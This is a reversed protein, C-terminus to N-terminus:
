TRLLRRYLLVTVLALLVIGSWMLAMGYLSARSNYAVNKGMIICVVLVAAPMSSVGFATLLHGGKLMIGMAIGILILLICGLSFSLRVQTEIDIATFTERVLSNLREV